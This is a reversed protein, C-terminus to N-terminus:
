VYPNGSTVPNGDADVAVSATSLVGSNDVQLKFYSGNASKLIISGQEIINDTNTKLANLDTQEISQQLESIHRQEYQAPPDPLSSM